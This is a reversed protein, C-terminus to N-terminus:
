CCCFFIDIYLLTLPTKKKTLFQIWNLSHIFFINAPVVVILIFFLTLNKEPTLVWRSLLKKLGIKNKWWFTFIIYSDFCHIGRAVIVLWNWYGNKNNIDFLIRKAKITIIFRWNMTWYSLQLQTCNKNRYYSISCHDFSHNDRKKPGVNM